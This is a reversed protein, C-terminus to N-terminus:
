DHNIADNCGHDDHINGKKTWKWRGPIGSLAPWNHSVKDGVDSYCIIPKIHVAMIISM